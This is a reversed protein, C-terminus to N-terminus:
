IFQVASNRVASQRVRCNMSQRLVQQRLGWSVYASVRMRLRAALFYTSHSREVVTVGEGQALAVSGDTLGSDDYIRNPIGRVSVICRALREGENRGIVVLGRRRRGLMGLRDSM